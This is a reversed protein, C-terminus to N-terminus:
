VCKGNTVWQFFEITFILFLFSLVEGEAQMYFLLYNGCFRFMLGTVINASVVWTTAVGCLNAHSTM